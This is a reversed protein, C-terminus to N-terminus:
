QHKKYCITSIKSYEVKSFRLNKVNPHEICKYLKFMDINEIFVSEIFDKKSKSRCRRRILMVFWERDRQNRSNIACLERSKVDFAFLASGYYPWIYTSTTDFLKIEFFFIDKLGKTKLLKIKRNKTELIDSIQEKNLYINESLCFRLEANAIVLNSDLVQSFGEYQLFILICLIIFKRNM